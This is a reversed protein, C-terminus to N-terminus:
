EYESKIVLPKGGELDKKPASSSRWDFFRTFYFTSDFKANSFM